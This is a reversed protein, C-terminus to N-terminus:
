DYKKKYFLYLHYFGTFIAWIVLLLNSIQVFSLITDNQYLKTVDLFDVGDYTALSIFSTFLFYMLSFFLYNFVKKFFSLKKSFLNYLIMITVFVIIFFYVVTSPFYIYNLIEKVFSDICTKVYSTYSILIGLVFGLYIGIALMQIFRNNRKLNVLLVFFLLLTMLFMEISLFSSFIYRFIVVFKDIFSLNLFIVKKM